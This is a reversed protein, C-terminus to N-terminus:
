AYWEAAREAGTQSPPVKYAVNFNVVPVGSPLM